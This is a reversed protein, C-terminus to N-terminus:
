VWQCLLRFLELYWTQDVTVVEEIEDRGTGSAVVGVHREMVVEGSGLEGEGDLRSCTGSWPISSEGGGRAVHEDGFPGVTDDDRHIELVVLLDLRPPLRDLLSFRAFPVLPLFEQRPLRTAQM